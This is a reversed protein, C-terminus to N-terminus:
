GQGVPSAGLRAAVVAVDDERGDRLTGVLRDVLAELDGPDTRALIATLRDLGDSLDADRREILGDTFAVITSGTPLHLDIDHRTGGGVGLLLDGPGELIRVGADPLRVLVPPHGANAIRLHWGGERPQVRAYVMTALPAAHLEQMLRDVRTLVRAPSAVARAGSDDRASALLLGRLHGMAVAAHLDHGIVDGVILGVAGGDGKLIEYFDGGVQAMDDAPLYRTAVVMSDLPPVEPLLSRQLLEAAEHEHRYLRLNDLIVGVRRGVEAAVHLVEDDFVRGDPEAVLIVVGLVRRRRAVLPVGVISGLGLQEVVEILEPSAVDRLDDGTVQAHLVPGDGSRLRDIISGPFTGEPLLEVYRDVLHHRGHRHRVVIRAEDRVDEDILNIVAWDAMRPVVLDALRELSEGLDLTTVLQSTIEALYSLEHRARETARRADREADFAAKRQEVAEVRETVDEQIGVFAEVEGSEGRVPDIFVRNWFATGDKRRNLLTVTCSRAEVVARRMEEVASPDTGPGQLFRCNRGLVEGARYGTTRTFAPNVWVLPNDPRRPDSVTCSVGTAAVSRALLGTLDGGAPPRAEDM